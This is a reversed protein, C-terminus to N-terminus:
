IVYCMNLSFSHFRNRQEVKTQRKLKRRCAPTHPIGQDNLVSTLHYKRSFRQPLADQFTPLM